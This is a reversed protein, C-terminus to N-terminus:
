GAGAADISAVDAAHFYSNGDADVVVFGLELLMLFLLLLLLLLKPLQWKHQWIQCRMQCNGFKPLEFLLANSLPKQSSNGFKPKPLENSQGM